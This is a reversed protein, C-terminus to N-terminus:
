CSMSCCYFLTKGARQTYLPQKKWKHCIEDPCSIKQCSETHRFQQFIEVALLCYCFLTKSTTQLIYLNKEGNIVVKKTIFLKRVCSEIHRFQQFIWFDWSCHFFLTRRTTQSITPILAFARIEFRTNWSFLARWIKRFVFM